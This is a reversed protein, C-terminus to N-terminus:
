VTFNVAEEVEAKIDSVAPTNYQGNEYPSRKRYNEQSTKLQEDSKEAKEADEAAAEKQKERMEGLKQLLEDMSNAKIRTEGDDTSLGDKLLAYYNVKGESDVSVGYKDAVDQRYDDLKDANDTFQGVSEEIIGEYKAAVTEDAAMRELLDPTLLVNYEGKGQSLLNDAEDDTSFDAVIFDMDPYKEKLKDLYSQATESLASTNETKDGKQVKIEDTKEQAKELASTFDATDYKSRDKTKANKNDVFNDTYGKAALKSKGSLQSMDKYFSNNNIGNM